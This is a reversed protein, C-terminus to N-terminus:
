KLYSVLENIGEGTVSSVKFIKKCGAL